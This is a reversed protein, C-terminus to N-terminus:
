IPPGFLHPIAPDIEKLADPYQHIFLPDPVPLETVGDFDWYNIVIGRDPFDKLCRIVCKVGRLQKKCPCASFHSFSCVSSFTQEVLAVFCLLTGISQQYVNIGRKMWYNPIMWKQIPDPQLLLANARGLILGLKIGRLARFSGM